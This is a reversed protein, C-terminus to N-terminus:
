LRFIPYRSDALTRPGSPPEVAGKALLGVACPIWSELWYAVIEMLMNHACQVSGAVALAILTATAPPLARVAPDGPCGAFTPECRAGIASRWM